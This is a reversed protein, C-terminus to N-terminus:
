QVLELEVVVGAVQSFKPPVYWVEPAKKVKFTMGRYLVRDTLLIDLSALPSYLVYDGEALVRDGLWQRAQFAPAMGVGYITTSVANAWDKGESSKGSYPSTKSGARLRVVSDQLIMM